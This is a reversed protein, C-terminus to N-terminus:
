LRSSAEIALTRVREVSALLRAGLRPWATADADVPATAAGPGPKGLAREVVELQALVELAADWTGGPLLRGAAIKLQVKEWENIYGIARPATQQDIGAFRPDAPPDALAVERFAEAAASVRRRAREVHTIGEGATASGAARAELVAELQYLAPLLRKRLEITAILHVAASIAGAPHVAFASVGDGAGCDRCVQNVAAAFLAEASQEADWSLDSAALRACGPELQTALTGDVLGLDRRALLVARLVTGLAGVLTPPAFTAPATPM